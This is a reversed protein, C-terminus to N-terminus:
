TNPYTLTVKMMTNNANTKKYPIYQIGDMTLGQPSSIDPSNRGGIRCELAEFRLVNTGQTLQTIIQLVEGDRVAGYITDDELHGSFTGECNYVGTPAGSIQGTGDLYRSAEGDANNDINVDISSVKVNKSVGAFSNVSVNPAKNEFKTGITLDTITGTIANATTKDVTKCVGSLTAILEGSGSFSFKISKMIIGKATYFLGGAADQHEQQYYFSSVSGDVVTFTDTDTGNGNDTNTKNGFVSELFIPLQLNDVRVTASFTGTEPDNYPESANSDGTIENSQSIPITSNADITHFAIKNGNASPVGYSAEVGFVGEVNSGKLQSM